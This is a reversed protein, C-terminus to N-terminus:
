STGHTLPHNTARCAAGMFSKQYGIFCLSATKFCLYPASTRHAKWHQAHTRMRECQVCLGKRKKLNGVASLNLHSASHIKKTCLSFTARAYAVHAWVVTGWGMKGEERNKKAPGLQWMCNRNEGAGFCKNVREDQLSGWRRYGQM